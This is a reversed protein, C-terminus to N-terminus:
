AVVSPIQAEQKMLANVWDREVQSLAPLEARLERSQKTMRSNTSCIQELIRVTPADMLADTQELYAQYRSELGPLLADYFGSLRRSSDTVKGIDSLLQAYAHAPKISHQMPLRLERTRKGLADANQAIDWTHEGFLLKLEMEPATPTWQALMEMLQVNIHRFTAVAVGREQVSLGM